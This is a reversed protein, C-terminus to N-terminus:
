NEVAQPAAIQEQSALWAQLQAASYRVAGGQLKTAPPGIRHLRWRRVTALSVDLLRAVETDKLYLLNDSVSSPIVPEFVQPLTKRLVNNIIGDFCRRFRYIGFTASDWRCTKPM